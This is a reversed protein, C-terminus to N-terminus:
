FGCRLGILASNELLNGHSVMVGRPAATSGSTYQLFALTEDVLGPDRWRGALTREQDVDRAVEDSAIWILERLAPAAVSWRERDAALSTTTLVARPEADGRIARIRDPPRNPRPPHTPVAIVGAALCGFFATVFELGPPYLLIAREGELGLEQLRAALARTRIELEGLTLSSDGVGGVRYTPFSFVRQDPRDSAWTQLVELFSGFRPTDNEPQQKM